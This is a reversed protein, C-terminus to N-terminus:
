PVVKAPFGEQNLRRSAQVAEERDTFRGVRVRHIARGDASARDVTAVYGRRVLAQQLRVANAQVGFAGVQVSFAFDGEQLLRQALGAEFSQPSQGVVAQLAARARDWQGTARAAQGIQYQARAAVPHGPGWRDLVAQYLAVAQFPDGGMWVADAVGVEAEARWRSEPFHEILHQFAQRAEAVQHMQLHSMGLLYRLHDQRNVLAQDMTWRTASQIVAAYEGRLYAAELESSPDTASQGWGSSVLVLGTAAWWVVLRNV